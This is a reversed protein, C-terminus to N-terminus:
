RERFDASGRWGLKSRLVSYFSRSTVRLVRAHYPASTIRLEDGSHLKELIQGDISIRLEDDSEGGDVKLCRENSIVLPRVALTHPCLAQVVLADMTPEVVPGGASLSHATSGTPTAVILGDARFTTLHEGDIFVRIERIRGPKKGSILTENLGDHTWLERGRKWAGVRIVGREEVRYDGGVLHEIAEDVEDAGVETLFGLRGFNIGLLPIGLAGGIRAAHLLTGDGGLCIVADPIGDRSDNGFRVDAGADAEFVIEAGARAVADRLSGLVDEFGPKDRNVFVGLRRLETM